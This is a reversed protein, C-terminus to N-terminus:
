FQPIKQKDQKTLQRERILMDQYLEFSYDDFKM